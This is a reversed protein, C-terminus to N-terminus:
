GTWKKHRGRAWIRHSSLATSLEYFLHPFIRLRWRATYNTVVNMKGNEKLMRLIHFDPPATRGIRQSHMCKSILNLKLHPSSIISTRLTRSVRNLFHAVTATPKMKPFLVKFSKATRYLARILITESFSWDIRLFSWGNNLPWNELKEVSLWISQTPEHSLFRIISDIIVLRGQTLTTKSMMLPIYKPIWKKFHMQLLIRARPVIPDRGKLGLDLM